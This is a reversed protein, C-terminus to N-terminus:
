EFIHWAERYQGINPIATASNTAMALFCFPAAVPSADHPFLYWINGPLMVALADFDTLLVFNPPNGVNAVAAFTPWVVTFAQKM